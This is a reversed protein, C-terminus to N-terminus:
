LFFYTVINLLFSQPIILTIFSTSRTQRSEYQKRNVSRANNINTNRSDRDEDSDVDVDMEDKFSPTISEVRVIRNQSEMKVAFVCKM